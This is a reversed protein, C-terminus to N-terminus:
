LRFSSEMNYPHIIFGKLAGWYVMEYLSSMYDHLSKFAQCLASVYAQCSPQEKGKESIRLSSIHSQRALNIEANCFTTESYRDTMEWWRLARCAGVRSCIKILNPIHRMKAYSPSISAYSFSLFNLNQDFMKNAFSTDLTEGLVYHNHERRFNRNTICQYIGCFRDQCVFYM